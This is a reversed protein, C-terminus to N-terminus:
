CGGSMREGLQEFAYFRSEAEEMEREYRLDQEHLALVHQADMYPLKGTAGCSGCDDVDPPDYYGHSPVQVQGRGGCEPCPVLPEPPDAYGERAANARLAAAMPDLASM